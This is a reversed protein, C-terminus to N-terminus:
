SVKRLAPLMIPDPRSASAYCVRDRGGNKAAYLWQDAERYATVTDGAVVEALGGSITVPHEIVPVAGAIEGTLRGRLANLKIAASELSADRLAIVFEEGGFRWAGAIADSREADLLAQGAAALVQDGVDHGYGDNIAKFRDLDLLALVDGEKWAFDQFDRRNALGTLQDHTADNALIESRLLARDRERSIELMRVAIIALLGVINTAIGADFLFDGMSPLSYLGFGRLLRELAVLFPLVWVALFLSAYRWRRHWALAATAALMIMGPVFAALYLPRLSISVAMGLPIAATGVFGLLASSIVAGRWYRPFRENAFFSLMFALSFIGAFQLAGYSLTTRQWLTLGPAILFILSSSSTVYTAILVSFALHYVAYRQRIAVAFGIAAVIAAVLLGLVFGVFVMTQEKTQHASQSPSFAVATMSQADFPRDFRVYIARPRDPGLSLPVSFRTGTTWHRAIDRETLFQERYSGDNAEIVVLISEVPTASSELDFRGDPIASGSIRLWTHRSPDPLDAARCQWGPLTRAQEFSLLDDSALTCSRTFLNAVQAGAPQCFALM